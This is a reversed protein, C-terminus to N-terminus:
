FNYTSAHICCAICKSHSKHRSGVSKDKHQICRMFDVEKRTRFYLSVSFRQLVIESVTIRVERDYENRKLADVYYSLHRTYFRMVNEPPSVYYYDIDQYNGKKRSPGIDESEKTGGGRRRSEVVRMESLIDFPLSLSCARTRTVM